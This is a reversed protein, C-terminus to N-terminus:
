AGKEEAEKRSDGVLDKLASTMQKFISRQLFAGLLLMTPSLIAWWKKLPLIRCAWDFEFPPTSGPSIRVTVRIADFPGVSQVTFPLNSYKIERGGVHEIRLRNSGAKQFDVNEGVFVLDVTVIEVNGTNQVAVAIEGQEGVEVDRPLSLRVVWDASTIVRYTDPPHTYVFVWLAAAVAAFSGWFRLRSPWLGPASVERNKRGWEAILDGVIRYAGDRETVKGLAVLTGLCERVTPQRLGLRRAISHVALGPDHALLILVEREHEGAKDFVDRIIAQVNGQELVEQKWNGDLGTTVLIRDATAQAYYPKCGTWTLIEDIASVLPANNVLGFAKGLPGSLLFKEVEEFEPARLFYGRVNNVLPSTRDRFRRHWDEAGAIVFVINAYTQMASRLQRFVVESDLFKEDLLVEVEDLMVVGRRKGLEKSFMEFLALLNVVEPTTKPPEGNSGLLPSRNLFGQQQLRATVLQGCGILDRTPLDHLSVFVGKCQNVKSLFGPVRKKLTCDLLDHEYELINGNLLDRLLYLVLTKGIRAEGFVAVSEGKTTVDILESLDRSRGCVLTKCEICDSTSTSYPNNVKM